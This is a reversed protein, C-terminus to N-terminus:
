DKKARRLSRKPSSYPSGPTGNSDKSKNGDNKSAEHAEIAKRTEDALRKQLEPRYNFVVFLVELFVFFPALLLAQVLNDLLAPARGEFVGHGIFQVIWSVVHVGIAISVAGAGFKVTFAWAAYSLCFLIPTYALGAFPELLVYYSSYVASIIYSATLPADLVPIDYGLKYGSFFVLM